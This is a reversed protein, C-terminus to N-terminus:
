RADDDGVNPVEVGAVRPVRGHSPRQAAGARLNEGDGVLAREQLARGAEQPM